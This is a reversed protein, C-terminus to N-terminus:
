LKMAVVELRRIKFHVENNPFPTELELFRDIVQTLFVSKLNEPLPRLYPFWQSIFKEFAERSPFVDKQSVVALRSPVFGNISLLNGFADEEVFNWGTSFQQFYPSWQPRLMIESVAQELTKPLGMPMTVALTGSQKLSQYAGKLFVDHNKVWQLATFSFIIDFEENYDLGLADKLKFQLNLDQPFAAKAFEIMAPSIDIGIISGNPINGAIEATIKGDGCGVDLIKADNKMPVYKMLSSASDKQSASHQSYEKPKWSDQNVEKCETGSQHLLNDLMERIEKIYAIKQVEEYIPLDLCGHIVKPFSKLMTKVGAHLLRQAYNEGEQRLPDYETTIIIAPPLNSLDQARDLSGYPSNQAESSQLYVSWMFQSADKTMFYQDLCQSYAEENLISTIMPYILVQAAISPGHLDRAMLSVAAALNGGASEGGVILQNKNGGFRECNEALWKTAVYCDELPKPFPNEPALRYEVSAIICGLHNSLKRCVPDAEEVNGFVWGGRHFYVFVPLADSTINPVFIRIKIKNQDKGLVKVDEIRKVEERVVDAPLFFETCLRRGENISVEQSARTIEVFADIFAKFRPNSILDASSQDIFMSCENLTAYFSGWGCLFLLSSFVITPLFIKTLKKM